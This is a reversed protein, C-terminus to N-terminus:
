WKTLYIIVSKETFVHFKGSGARVGPFIVPALAVLALPNEGVCNPRKV